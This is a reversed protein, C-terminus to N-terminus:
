HIIAPITVVAGPLHQGGRRTAVGRDPEATRSSRERSGTMQLRIQGLSCLDDGLGTAPTGLLRPRGRERSLSLPAGQRGGLDGFPERPEADQVGGCAKCGTGFMGVCYPKKEQHGNLTRSIAM